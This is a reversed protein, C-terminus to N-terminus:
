YMKVVLVSYVVKEFTNKTKIKQKTLCLDTLDIIYVYHLKHLKNNDILLLLDISDKFKQDSVYIPFVLENEYGFVNICINNKVEIKSFDKEQMPFEIGDYDLKEAIKKDTKKIREPHEKSPNIHRVHCWLFCKQDKNKINILGKKPSRLEVPLSIYSNGSLPRYTSINIYQSKISEVIWSSGENIWVDILYLINEFSNELKFRHNIATEITSNYYVPAFEIEGNLKYKKLLVKVTIQYKFGKTENLLDCLLDKISSKSAELQVTPVKRELIEVKHSM